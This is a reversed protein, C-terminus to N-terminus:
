FCFSTFICSSYLLSFFVFILMLFIFLFSFFFTGIGHRMSVASGFYSDLVPFAFFQFLIGVVAGISNLIGIEREEFALGNNEISQSTWVPITQIVVIGIFSLIVYISICLSTGQDLFSFKDKVLNIFYFGSSILQKPSQISDDLLIHIDTSQEGDQEQNIIENEDKNEDNQNDDDLNDNISHNEDDKEPNSHNEENNKINVHNEDKNEDNQNNDDLNDNISHNEDDKVHNKDVDQQKEISIENMEIEVSNPDIQNSKNVTEKMCTILIFLCVIDIFSAVFCVLAYPYNRFFQSNIFTHSLWFQDAPRALFSGLLPAIISGLSFGVERYGFVKAQNSSDTVERVFCKTIPIFCNTAGNLFRLFVCIWFSNSIGFICQCIIDSILGMIFIPKRGIRDSLYCYPFNSLFQGLYFATAFYGAYYGANEQEIGFQYVLMLTTITTYFNLSIGEAFTILILILSARIPIPTPPATQTVEEM